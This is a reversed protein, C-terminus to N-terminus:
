VLDVGFSAAVAAVRSKLAADEDIMRSIKRFAYLPVTHDRGGFRRGIEPLSKLTMHKALFMAVHRPLVLDGTRRASVMDTIRIKWEQCVARQISEISIKRRHEVEPDVEDTIKFWIRAAHERGANVATDAKQKATLWAAAAAEAKAREEAERALRAEREKREQELRAAERIAAAADIKAKFQRHKAISEERSLIPIEASMSM